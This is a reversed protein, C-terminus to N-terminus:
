RRAEAAQLVADREARARRRTGLLAPAAGSLLVASHLTAFAANNLTGPSQSGALGYAAAGLLVAVTALAPAVARPQPGADGEKPTVVFRAPRRLLARVSAQVHVWFSTSALAFAAFTYTGRGALAVSALAVGFYPAFHALFDSSSAAAIPQIGTVIRVVPLSMYVLLTWGWLFYSASLLYQFKIRWPLRARVVAPIASLCGRAWRQQQSVYSAMDEPGLGSAVVEPFYASKWGREHLRLSLEFDETVSDEPFGGVDELAGRRFVVNTGCCFIAGVGDKGRAIPGFFLAQQSWSAAAVPNQRANAYYQPTQVFAVEPDDLHGLTAELLDPRPVHDSDLVLVFPASTRALARNINGAKAGKRDDRTLYAAGHREAMAKMEPNRGDDLVAVNIPASRLQLAAAVTPEVVAVPEDYVPIFVDVAEPANAAKRPRVRQQACTWWFGAIQVLNFFEAALLLGYLIPNGARGPALLWAFYWIALPVIVLGLTRTRARAHAETEVPWEIPALRADDGSM